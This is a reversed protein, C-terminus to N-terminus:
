SLLQAIHTLILDPPNQQALRLATTGDAAIDVQYHARRFNYALLNTVAPEDDVILIRASMM